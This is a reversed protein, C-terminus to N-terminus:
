DKQNKTLIFQIPENRFMTFLMATTVIVPILQLSYSVRWLYDDMCDDCKDNEDKNPLALGFCYTVFIGTVIGFNIVVSAKAQSESPVMESIMLSSSNILIAGCYGLVLRLACFLGYSGAFFNPITVIVVLLNALLAARRRGWDTLLSSTVSGLTMGLVAMSSIVTNYRDGEDGWELQYTLVTGVDTNGSLAFGSM